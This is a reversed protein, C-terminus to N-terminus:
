ALGQEAIAEAIAWDAETNLDIATLPDVPLGVCRGAELRGERLFAERRVWYLNAFAYRPPDSQRTPHAYHAEPQAFALTGDPREERVHFPHFTRPVEITTIASDAGQELLSLLAHCIQEPRVFPETPQVDLVLEPEYSEEAALWELAHRIVGLTSAEDTALEAPRVFPTEAGAARAVAAIEESDTSVVIRDVAGSEAIAGLVHAILPKGALPRINKGPIGRSGGRAPVLALRSDSPGSV